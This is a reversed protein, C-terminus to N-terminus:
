RQSAEAPHWDPPAYEGTCTATAKCVREQTRAKLPGSEVVSCSVEGLTYGDRALAMQCNGRAKKDLTQRLSLESAVSAFGDAKLQFVRQVEAAYSASLVAGSALLGLALFGMRGPIIKM